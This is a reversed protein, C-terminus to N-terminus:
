SLFWVGASTLLALDHLLPHPTPPTPPNIYVCSLRPLVKFILRLYRLSRAVRVAMGPLALSVWHVKHALIDASLLVFFFFCIFFFCYRLQGTALCAVLLVMLEYIQYFSLFLCRKFCLPEHVCVFACVRVRVHILQYLMNNLLCEQWDMACDTWRVKTLTHCKRITLCWRCVSVGGWGLLWQNTCGVSKIQSWIPDFPWGLLDIKGMFFHLSAFPPSLPIVHNILPLFIM